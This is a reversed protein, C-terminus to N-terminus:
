TATHHPLIFFDQLFEAMENNTLPYVFYHYLPYLQALKKIYETESPDVLAVIKAACQTKQLSVFLMDLNSIHVGSYNSGYAYFFESVILDPCNKKLYQNAKRISNVADAVIGQAKFIDSFDPHRPTERISLVTKM